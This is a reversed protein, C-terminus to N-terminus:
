FLGSLYQAMPSVLFPLFYRCVQEEFRHCFGRPQFPFVLASERGSRSVTSTCSSALSIAVSRNHLSFQLARGRATWLGISLFCIRIRLGRRSGTFRTGLKGGLGTISRQFLYSHRQHLLWGRWLRDEERFGHQVDFIYHQAHLCREAQREYDGLLLCPNCDDLQLESTDKTHLLRLQLYKEIYNGNKM